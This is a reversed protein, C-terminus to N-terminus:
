DTFYSFRTKRWANHITEAGIQQETALIFEVVHRCTTKKIPADPDQAMLWDNYQSKVKAKFPKNYGVDVPQVLGTCGPPTFKVEVRLAQIKQVVSGMMHISFSNLFLFPIIGVPASAVHPALVDDVWELMIDEAFCAKPQCKYVADAPYSPLKRREIM